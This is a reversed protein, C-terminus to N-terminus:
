PAVVVVRGDMFAHLTCTFVYEGATDFSRSWSGDAQVSSSVGDDFVVDHDEGDTWRWTLETGVPVQVSAPVFNSDVIDLTSVDLTPPRAAADDRWREGIPSFWFGVLTGVLGVAVVVAVTVVWHPRRPSDTSPGAGSGPGTDVSATM